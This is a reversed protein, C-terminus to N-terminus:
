NRPSAYCLLKSIQFSVSIVIIVRVIELDNAMPFCIWSVGSSLLSVTLQIEVYRFTQRESKSLERCAKNFERYFGDLTYAILAIHVQELIKPFKIELTGKNKQYETEAEKWTNKLVKDNQIELCLNQWLEELSNPVAIISTEATARGTEVNGQNDLSGFVMGEERCDLMMDEGNSYFRDTRITNSAM